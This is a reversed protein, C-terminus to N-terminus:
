GIERSFENAEMFRRQAGTSCVLAREKDGGLANDRPTSSETASKSAARVSIGPSQPASM